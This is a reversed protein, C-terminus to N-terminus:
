MYQAYMYMYKSQLICLNHINKYTYNREPHLLLGWSHQLCPPVQTPLDFLSMLLPTLGPKYWSQGENVHMACNCLLSSIVRVVHLILGTHTQISRIVIKVITQKWYMFKVMFITCLTHTSTCKGTFIVIITLNQCQM